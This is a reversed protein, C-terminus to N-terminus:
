LHEQIHLFPVSILLIKWGHSLPVSPQSTKISFSHSHTHNSISLLPNYSNSTSAAMLLNKDNSHVRLIYVIKSVIMIRNNTYMTVSLLLHDQSPLTLSVSHIWRLKIASSEPATNRLSKVPSPNRLEPLRSVIGFVGPTFLTIAFYLLVMGLSYMFLNIVVLNSTLIHGLSLISFVYICVPCM